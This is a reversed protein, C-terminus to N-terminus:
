LEAKAARRRPRGARIMHLIQVDLVHEYVLRGQLKLLTCETGVIEHKLGAQQWLLMKFQCQFSALQLVSRSQDLPGLRQFEVSAPM